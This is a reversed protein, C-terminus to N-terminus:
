RGFPNRLRSLVGGKAEADAPKAMDTEIFGIAYYANVFDIVDALTAGSGEVVEGLTSLQKLMFTAIRFHKAFEREIQPWRSLKYRANPDLGPLLAGNSAAIAYYWLLRSYPQAPAAARAQELEMASVQQWDDPKITRQCHAALARLGAGGAHYNQTTPDLILDPAGESVLRSARELPTGALYDALTADRL